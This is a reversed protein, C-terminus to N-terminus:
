IKQLIPLWDIRIITYVSMFNETIKHDGKHTKIISHLPYTQNIQRRYQCFERHGTQIIDMLEQYYDTSNLQFLNKLM